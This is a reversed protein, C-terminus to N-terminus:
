YNTLDLSGYTVVKKVVNVKSMSVSQSRRLCAACSFNLKLCESFCVNLYKVMMEVVIRILTNLHDRIRKKTRM